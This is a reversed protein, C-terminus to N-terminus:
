VAVQGARSTTKWGPCVCTSPAVPFRCLLWNGKATSMVQERDTLSPTSRIESCIARRRAPCHGPALAYGVGHRVCAFGRHDTRKLHVTQVGDRATAFQESPHGQGQLCRLWAPHMRDAHVQVLGIGQHRNSGSPVVRKTLPMSTVVGGSSDPLKEASALCHHGLESINKR